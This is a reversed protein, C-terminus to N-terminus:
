RTASSRASTSTSTSRRGPRRRAVRGRGRLRGAPHGPRRHPRRVRAPRRRRPARDAPRRLVRGGARHPGRPPEDVALRHVGGRLPQRPAPLPEPAHRAAARGGRAHRGRPRRADDGRGPRPDRVADDDEDPRPDAGARGADPGPAQRRPELAARGDPVGAARPGDGPGDRRAPAPRGLAGGAPARAAPRAGPHAGGRRRPRQVEAKPRRRLRLGISLNEAVTMHPYLAYNQFVMAVDRDRPPMDTVLTDGIM